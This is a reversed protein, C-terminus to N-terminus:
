SRIGADTLDAGHFGIRLLRNVCNDGADPTVRDGRDRSYLLRNANDWCNYVIM